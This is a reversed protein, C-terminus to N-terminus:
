TGRVPANGWLPVKSQGVVNGNWEQWLERLAEASDFPYYAIDGKHRRLWALAGSLTKDNVRLRGAEIMAQVCAVLPAPQTTGPVYAAEIWDSAFMRLGGRTARAFGM